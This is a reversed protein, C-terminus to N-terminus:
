KKGEDSRLIRQLHKIEIKKSEVMINDPKNALFFQLDDKAKTLQTRMADMYAVKKVKIKLYDGIIAEKIDDMITHANIADEFSWNLIAFCDNGLIPFFGIEKATDEDINSGLIDIYIVSAFYNLNCSCLLYGILQELAFRKNERYYDGFHVRNLVIYAKDLPCYFEADLLINGQSDCFTAKEFEEIKELDGYRLKVSKKNFKNFERKKDEEFTVTM